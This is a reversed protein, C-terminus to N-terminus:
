VALNNVNMYVIKSTHVPLSSSGIEMKKYSDRADKEM